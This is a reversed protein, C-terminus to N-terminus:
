KSSSRDADDTLESSWAPRHRQAPAVRGRRAQGQGVAVQRRRDGAEGSEECREAVLAQPGPVQRRERARVGDAERLALVEAGV